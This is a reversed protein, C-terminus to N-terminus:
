LMDSIIPLNRFVIQALYYLTYVLPIAILVQVLGKIIDMTWESAEKRKTLMMYVGAIALLSAAIAIGIAVVILSISAGWQMVLAPTIEQENGTVPVANPHISNIQTTTQALATIPSAMMATVLISTFGKHLKKLKKLKRNKGSLQTEKTVEESFREALFSISEVANVKEPKLRYITSSIGETSIGEQRIINTMM